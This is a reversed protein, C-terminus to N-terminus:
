NAPRSAPPDGPLPGENKAQPAPAKAAPAPTTRAAARGLRWLMWVGGSGLAAILWPWRPAPAPAKLVRELHRRASDTEPDGEFHVIDNMITKAEPELTGLGIRAPSM